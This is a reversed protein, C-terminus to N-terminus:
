ERYLTAVWDPYRADPMLDSPLYPKIDLVPSGDIADLGSVRLMNKSRELLKVVTMGIANPRHPARTAFVGTLPLDDRGQPHVKVPIEGRTQHMWFLIIIHSFGEIGDISATFDPDIILVSEIKGWERHAPKKTENRVHGIPKLPIISPDTMVIEM